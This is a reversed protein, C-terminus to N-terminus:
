MVCLCYFANIKKGFHGTQFVNGDGVGFLSSRVLSNVSYVKIKNGVALFPCIQKLFFRTACDTSINTLYKRMSM